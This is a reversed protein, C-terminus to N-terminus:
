FQCITINTRNLLARRTSLSRISSARTRSAAGLITRLIGGIDHELDHRGNSQLNQADDIVLGGSQVALVQLALYPVPSALGPDSPSRVGPLFQHYDITPIKDHTPIEPDQWPSIDLHSDTSRYAHPWNSSYRFRAAKQM